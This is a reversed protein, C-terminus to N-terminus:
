GDVSPAGYKEHRLYRVMEAVTRAQRSAFCLEEAHSNNRETREGLEGARELAERARRDLPQDSM